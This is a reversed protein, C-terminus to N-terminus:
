AEFNMNLRRSQRVRFSVRSARSGIRLMVGGKIIFYPIVRAPRSKPM